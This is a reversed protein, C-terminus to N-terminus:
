IAHTRKRFLMLFFRIESNKSIHQKGTKIYQNFFDGDIIEGLSMNVRAYHFRGAPGDLEQKIVDYIEDPLILDAQRM